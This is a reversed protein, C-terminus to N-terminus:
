MCRGQTIVGLFPGPPLLTQAVGSEAKEQSYSGPLTGQVETEEGAFCPVQVLRVASTVAPELGLERLDSLVGRRPPGRYTVDNAKKKKKRGRMKM